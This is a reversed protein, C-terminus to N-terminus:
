AEITSVCLFDSVFPWDPLSAAYSLAYRTLSIMVELQNGATVKLAPKIASLSVSM